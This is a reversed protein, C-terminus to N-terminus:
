PFIKFKKLIKSLLLLYIIFLLNYSERYFVFKEHNNIIRSIRLIMMIVVFLIIMPWTSLLTTYLTDYVPVLQKMNYM